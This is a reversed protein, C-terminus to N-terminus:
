CSQWYCDTHTANTMCGAHTSWSAQLTYVPVTCVQNQNNYAAKLMDYGPQAQSIALQLKAM